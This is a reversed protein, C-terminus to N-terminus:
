PEAPTEAPAESTTPTPLPAPQLNAIAQQFATITAADVTGTAPVGLDTQLAMLAETLADTWQGDVPGDWYGALKLTQQLAATAATAQQAAAEGLANLEDQLAAQTAKDVTGTEPLGNAQQLAVVADVTKPGYVGDIAGTYYGADALAQQLELTYTSVATAAQVQQDDTLCGSQAFLQLWAMELAVAAANFQESAQALPTQETIGAQATAFEDEAQQVRTVTAPPPTAGLSVPESPASEAPAVGASAQAAALAAQADALDQEAQSVAERASVVDEGAQVADDQPEVLDRGATAVDGVTPATQNLVDGYRDLATIYTSASSCFEAAAATAETQASTLADQATAVAEEAAEVPTQTSEAGCASLTVLLGSIAVFAVGRLRAGSPRAKGLMEM